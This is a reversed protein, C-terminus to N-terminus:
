LDIKAYKFFFSHIYGASFNYPLFKVITVKFSSFLTSKVVFKSNIELCLSSFNTISTTSM